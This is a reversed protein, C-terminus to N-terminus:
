TLVNVTTYARIGVVAVNRFKRLAFGSRGHAFVSSQRDRFRTAPAPQASERGDMRPDVRSNHVLRCAHVCVQELFSYFDKVRISVCMIFYNEPQTQPAIFLLKLKGTYNTHNGKHIVEVVSRIIM